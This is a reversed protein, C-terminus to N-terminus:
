SKKIPSLCYINHKLEKIEVQVPEGILDCARNILDAMKKKSIYDTNKGINKKKLARMRGHIITWQEHLTRPCKIKAVGEKYENEDFADAIISAFLKDSHLLNYKYRDEKEKTAFGDWGKEGNLYAKAIETLEEPTRAVDSLSRIFDSFMLKYPEFEDPEYQISIRGGCYAEYATSCGSHILLAAGAIWGNSEGERIVHVNEYPALDEIFRNIFMTDGPHPRVIIQRDVSKALHQIAEIFTEYYRLKFERRDKYFDVTYSTVGDGNVRTYDEGRRSKGFSSSVLIYDGYKEKYREADANYFAMGNRLLDMRPNGAVICKPLLEPMVEEIVDRHMDGWLFMKEFNATTDKGLRTELYLQATTLILGEEDLAYVKCGSDAIRKHQEYKANTFDKDLFVGTSLSGSLRSRVCTDEGLVVTYGRKVLETGLLVKASLERAISEVLKREANQSM